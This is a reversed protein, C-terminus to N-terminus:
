ASARQVRNSLRPDMLDRVGDGLLNLGLVSLIIASGPWIALLPHTVLYPQADKLIGGWSPTPPQAGLGLFALAAEILIGVGAMVTAQVIILGFMNPLVHRVFIYWNPRGYARAALVFDRGLIQKGAGRTLRAVAPTFWVVIGLVVAETGPGLRVTLILAVLIAPFAIVVDAARMIVDELVRNMTMTAVGGLTVGLTTALLTGLLAVKLSTRSGVMIRSLLDRGLADSGLWYGYEGPGALKQHVAVAAPAMPTWLLSIIAMIGISGVLVAGIRASLNPLLRM